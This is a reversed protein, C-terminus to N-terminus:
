ALYGTVIGIDSRAFGAQELANLNMELLTKGWLTTLCKPKDKTQEQMRSGSTHHRPLEEYSEIISAEASTYFFWNNVVLIQGSGNLVGQFFELATMIYTSIIIGLM